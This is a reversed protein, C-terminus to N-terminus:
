CGASAHGDVFRQDSNLCINTATEKYQLTLQNYKTM